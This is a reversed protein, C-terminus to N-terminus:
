KPAIVVVMEAENIRAVLEVDARTFGTCKDFAIKLREYEPEELLIEDDKCGELKMALMNQKVLEAGSLQLERRFMIALMSDKVPYPVEIDLMQGPNMNDPVRSKVTYNKISLKRM